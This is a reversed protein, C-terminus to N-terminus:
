WVEYNSRTLLEVLARMAPRYNPWAFALQRAWRRVDSEALAAMCQVAWAFGLARDEAVRAEYESYVQEQSKGAQNPLLEGAALWRLFAEGLDESWLTGDADLCALKRRPEKAQAAIALAFDPTFPALPDM